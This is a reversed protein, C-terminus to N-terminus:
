FKVCNFTKCFKEWTSPNMFSKFDMKEFEEKLLPLNSQGEEMIIKDEPVMALEILQRNISFRSRNEEVKMWERFQTTNRILKEAKADSMIAPINDSPDGRLSKWGLYHYEPAQQFVKRMPNYIKLKKYGMQLLQIYDTDNSIVVVSEDKLNNVLTAVVDDAEYDEAKCLTVPLYKCLRIIERKNVHFKDFTEQKSATKVIRNAKYESYIEYRHKPHGESVMFIKSPSFMEVLPRLNRFFNYIMVNESSDQKDKGWSMNARWMMNHLDIIMVADENKNM